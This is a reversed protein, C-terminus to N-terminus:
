PKTTAGQFPTPRAGIPKSMEDAVAKILQDESLGDFAKRLADPSDADVQVKGTSVNFLGSWIGVVFYRKVGSVQPVTPRLDEKLFLLYRQGAQLISYQVPRLTLEGITGGSQSIVIDSSSAGGKLTRTVTVLSDTELDQPSVHRPPMSKKVVGEIILPSMDCLEKLSGPSDDPKPTVYLRATGKSPLEPPTGGPRIESQAMSVQLAALMLMSSVYITKM